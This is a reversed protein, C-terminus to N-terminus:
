VRDVLMQAPAVAPAQQGGAGGVALDLILWNPDTVDPGFGWAAGPEKVYTGCPVDNFSFTIRGPEVTASYKNFRGTMDASWDGPCYNDPSNASTSGPVWTHGVGHYVNPWKTFAEMTDIEGIVPHDVGGPDNNLTWFAPWYGEQTPTKIWASMTGYVFGTRSRVASGATPTAPVVLSGRGDLTENDGPRIDGFAATPNYTDVSWDQWRSQDPLAGAPGDFDDAFLLAGPEAAAASTMGVAMPTATLLLAFAAATARGTTRLSAAM